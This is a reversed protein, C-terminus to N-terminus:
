GDPPPYRVTPQSARGAARHADEPLGAPRLAPMDHFRSPRVSKATAIAIPRRLEGPGRWTNASSWGFTWTPVYGVTIIGAKPTGLEIMRCPSERQCNLRRARCVASWVRVSQCVSRLPEVIQPRHRRAHDSRPWEEM